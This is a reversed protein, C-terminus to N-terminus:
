VAVWVGSFSHYCMDELNGSFTRVKKVTPLVQRALEISGEMDACHGEPLHILITDHGVAEISEIGCKLLPNYNDSM